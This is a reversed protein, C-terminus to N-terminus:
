FIVDFGFLGSAESAFVLVRLITLAVHYSAPIVTAHKSCHRKVNSLMMCMLAVDVM